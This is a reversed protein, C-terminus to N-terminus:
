NKGVIKVCFFSVVISETVSTLFLGGFLLENRRNIVEYRVLTPPFKHKDLVLSTDSTADVCVALGFLRINKKKKRRKM